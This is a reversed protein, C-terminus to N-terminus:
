HQNQKLIRGYLKKKESFNSFTQFKIRIVLFAKRKVLDTNHM